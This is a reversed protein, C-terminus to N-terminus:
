SPGTRHPDNVQLRIRVPDPTGSGALLGHYRGPCQDVPVWVRLTLGGSSGPPLPLSGAHDCGLVTVALQHGDGDVLATAHLGVDAMRDTPNHVWVPAESSSGPLVAPLELVEDAASMTAGTTREVLAVGADLLRLSAQAFQAASDVVLRLDGWDAPRDPEARWAGPPDGATLVRDVLAAYRNVVAAASLLGFRQVDGALDRAATNM